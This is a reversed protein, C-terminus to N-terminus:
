VTASVIAGFAGTLELVLLVALFTCWAIGYAAIGNYVPRTEESHHEPLAGIVNAGNVDRPLLLPAIWLPLARGCWYSTFIVAGLMPDGFAIAAGVLIWFGGHTIRTGFGLGIHFGWMAAATVFGFRMAWARETQRHRQPLAFRIWGVERFMLLIGAMALGYLLMVHPIWSTIAQGVGGLALGVIAASLAGSISHSTVCKIWLRRLRAVKM